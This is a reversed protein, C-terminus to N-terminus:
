GRNTASRLSRVYDAMGAMCGAFLSKSQSSKALSMCGGYSAVLFTAAQKPDVDPRVLGRQQGSTLAQGLVDRWRAHIGDLRSRFEEDIASMEQVLNNVPCGLALERPQANDVTKEIWGLMTDIPDLNPDNLTAWERTIQPCLVEDIVAHGLSAKNPFHHYLAGKTVGTRAIIKELSASRFGQSWMEEYAATLLSNRTTDSKTTM